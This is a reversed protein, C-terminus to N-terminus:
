PRVAPADAPIPVLQLTLQDKEHLSIKQGKSEVPKVFDPDFYAGTEVDEWAYIQYDGPVLSMLNFGGSQDTTTVRYDRQQDRREKDQPILVVTAGAVPQTTQPDQVLGAVQAANSSLVVELDGPAANTLDLGSALVDTDGSKISKLYFGQPLSPVSLNYVDLNVQEIHFTGDEAITVNGPAEGITALDRPQLAVRISSLRVTSDGDIRVHGNLDIGPGITLTADEIDSGGVDVPLLTSHTMGGVSEVGVLYYSGPVVGRLEFKGGAGARTSQNLGPDVILGRVALGVTTSQPDGIPSVVRGSIHVTRAKELTLDADLRGGATITLESATPFNSTGPYYTPVFSEGAPGHTSRDATGLLFPDGRYTASLYYKGPLVTSIRFEGLDNTSTGNARELQKSGQQFRYRLLVVQVGAIPDGDRDVIRGTVVGQPTLKVTLGTLKQARDLSLTAGPRGPGRAGFAGTVYGSHSVTMRYRGPEIDRMAFKGSDDTSTSYGNFGPTTRTDFPRLVVAAKRLAGGTAADFVQGDLSALDEPKTEPPKPQAAAILPALVLAAALRM